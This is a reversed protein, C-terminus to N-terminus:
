SGGARAAAPAIDASLRDRLEALRAAFRDLVRKRYDSLHLKLVGDGLVVDGARARAARRRLHYRWGWRLLRELPAAAPGVVAEGLGQLRPWGLPGDTARPRFGPYHAGVWGENADCFALYTRPGSIPRASILQHATFLDHHYAIALENEDVLYNPCVIGRTRTLKTAAFLLTYATYARGAATVVFLDIDPKRGPNKHATGGSFALMRVFPLTALAQLTSRHRDVLAGTRTAGELRRAVLGDRGALALYGDDGGGHVGIHPALAPEAALRRAEGDEVAAGVCSAVSEEVPLPADFLDAYAVAALLGWEKPGLGAPPAGIPASAPVAARAVRTSSKERAIDWLRSATQTWSFVAARRRGSERAWAAAAPDSLLGSMAEALAHSDGPPVLRAADSAVERLAPVDSAVVPVGCAMAEVVPLGFGELRSPYVFLEAGGYLGVLEREPVYGLWRVHGLPSRAGLERLLQRDRWGRGGVVVLDLPPGGGPFTAALEDFAALLTVLNKRPELTGVTLVYPRDLGFAGRVAAVAEPPVPGCSPHAAGPLLAIRHPEVGLWEIIDRKSAESVTAVVSASALSQRLLPQMLLRKRLTFLEPMRVLAVDHVFAITPCPSALPVVYNPFAAVDARAEVLMRPADVQMWLARVAAGEIRLHAAWRRALEPALARNSILVLEDGPRRTELLADVLHETYYGIGARASTCTTVEVALRV